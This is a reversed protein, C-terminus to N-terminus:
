APAAARPRYRSARLATLGYAAPEMDTRHYRMQRSTGREGESPQLCERNADLSLTLPPASARDRCRGRVFALYGRASRWQVGAGVSWTATLTMSRCASGPAIR